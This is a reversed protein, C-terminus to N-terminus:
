DTRNADDRQETKMQRERGRERRAERERARLELAEQENALRFRNTKLYARWSDAPDAKDKTLVDALQVAAPGWRLKCSLRSLSEKGVICDLGTRRDECGASPNHSMMHDFVSKADIIHWSPLKGFWDERRALDFHEDHMEFFFSLLWEQHGLSETLAMTEGSMTSVVVRRLRHSRWLIPCFQVTKGEGVGSEMICVM